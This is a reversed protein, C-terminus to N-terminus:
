DARSFRSTRSYGDPCTNGLDFRRPHVVEMSIVSEFRRHDHNPCIQPRASQSLVGLHSHGPDHCHGDLHTVSRCQGVQYVFHMPARRPSCGSAAEGKEGQRDAPRYSFSVLRSDAHDEQWIYIERFDDVQVSTHLKYAM